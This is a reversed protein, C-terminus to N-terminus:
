FFLDDYNKTWSKTPIYHEKKQSEISTFNINGNWSESSSYSPWIEPESWEHPKFQDLSADYLSALMEAAM